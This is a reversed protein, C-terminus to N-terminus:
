GAKVFVAQGNPLIKLYQKPPEEAWVQTAYEVTELWLTQAGILKILAMRMEKDYSWRDVTLPNTLGAHNSGINFARWRSLLPETGWRFLVTPAAATLALYMLHVVRGLDISGHLAEYIAGTTVNLILGPDPYAAGIDFDQRNPRVEVIQHFKDSIAFFFGAKLIPLKAGYITYPVFSM